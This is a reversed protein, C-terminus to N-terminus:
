YLEKIKTISAIAIMDNGRYFRCYRNFIKYRYPYTIIVGNIIVDEQDKILNDLKNIIEIIEM